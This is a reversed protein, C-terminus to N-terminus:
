AVGSRSWLPKLPPFPFTHSPSLTHTHPPSHSSLSHLPVALTSSEKLSNRPLFLRLQPSCGSPDVLPLWLHHLVPLQKRSVVGGWWPWTWGAEATKDAFHAPSYHRGEYWGQWPRGSLMGRERPAGMLHAGRGPTEGTCGGRGGGGGWPFCGTELFSVTLDRTLFPGM